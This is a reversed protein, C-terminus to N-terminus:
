KAKGLINPKQHEETHRVGRKFPDTLLLEREVLGKNFCVKWFAVFSKQVEHFLHKCFCSICCFLPFTVFVIKDETGAPIKERLLLGVIVFCLLM